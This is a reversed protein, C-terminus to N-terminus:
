GVFLCVFVRGEVPSRRSHSHQVTGTISGSYVLSQSGLAFTASCFVSHFGSGLGALGNSWNGNTGREVEEGDISASALAGHVTLRLERWRGRASGAHGAKGPVLLRAATASNHDSSGAAGV